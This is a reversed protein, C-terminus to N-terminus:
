VLERPRGGDQKQGIGVGAACIALDVVRGAISHLDESFGSLGTGFIRFSLLSSILCEWLLWEGARQWVLPQADGGGRGQRTARRGSTRGGERVPRRLRWPPIPARWGEWRRSLLPIRAGSWGPMTPPPMSEGDKPMKDFEVLIGAETQKRPTSRRWRKWRSPVCSVLCVCACPSGWWVRWAVILVVSLPARNMMNNSVLKRARGGNQKQGSVLANLSSFWQSVSNLYDTM